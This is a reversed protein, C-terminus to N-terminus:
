STVSRPSQPADIDALVVTMGLASAHRALGAGIGAGAGSIVAVGGDFPTSMAGAVGRSNKASYEAFPISDEADLVVRM